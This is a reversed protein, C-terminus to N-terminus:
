GRGTEMEEDRFPSQRTYWESIDSPNVSISKTFDQVFHLKTYLLTQNKTIIVRVLITRTLSKKMAIFNEVLIM